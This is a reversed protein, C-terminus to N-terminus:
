RNHCPFPNPRSLPQHPHRSGAVKQKVAAVAQFQPATVAACTTAVRVPVATMSFHEQHYYTLNM